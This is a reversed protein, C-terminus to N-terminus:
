VNKPSKTETRGHVMMLMTRVLPVKTLTRMGVGSGKPVSSSSLFWTLVHIVLRSTHTHSSTSQSSWPRTVAKNNDSSCTRPRMGSSKPSSVSILLIVLVMGTNNAAMVSRTLKPNLSLRNFPVNGKDSPFKVARVRQM